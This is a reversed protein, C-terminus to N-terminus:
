RNERYNICYSNHGPEYRVKQYNVRSGPLRGASLSDTELICSCVPFICGSARRDADSSLRSLVPQRFAAQAFCM